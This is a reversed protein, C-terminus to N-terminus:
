PGVCSTTRYRRYADVRRMQNEVPPPPSDTPSAAKSTVITTLASEGVGFRVPKGEM